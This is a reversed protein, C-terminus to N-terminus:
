LFIKEVNKHKKLEKVFYSPNYRPIMVYVVSKTRTIGVYFLRREEEFPYPQEKKILSLLKEDKLLIPFGYLAHELNLLIVVDSELGKSSHVTLFRINLNPFKDFVIQHNEKETYSLKKTYKKIDFHNRGLIFVEKDESIKVLIKELATDVRKYFVLKIPKELHKDSTLEKKIQNPNKQIFEGATKVLEESNRYTRELKYVKATPYYKTFQLFITLDCGSFHYISQYDDGVVCLSADTLRIIEQVFQFRCLSTDQFEDIILMKYPLSVSHTQLYETTKLIIDDFDLIAASNKNSEYFLYIAYILYLLPEKKSLKLIHKLDNQFYGNAKCLTIFTAIKKKIGSFKPSKLLFGWSFFSPYDFVQYCKKILFTNGFCKAQFFEEITYELFDPKAIQYTIHEKKLIDLALKHFTFIPIEVKCNKQINRQLDRTAENTFSIMCIEEPNLLHNELLYKVKGILTLTKGSGAGAIIISYKPNELIPKLQEPDLAYNNVCIKNM